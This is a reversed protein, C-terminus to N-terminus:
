GSASFGWWWWWPGAESAVVQALLDNAECFMESWDSENAGASDALGGDGQGDEVVVADLLSEVIVTSEDTAVLEGGRAIVEEVAKGPDDTCTNFVGLIQSWETRM